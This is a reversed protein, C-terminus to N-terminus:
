PKAPGPPMVPRRHKPINLHDAIVENYQFMVAFRQWAEIRARETLEGVTRISDRLLQREAYAWTDHNAIWQGHADIRGAEAAIRDNIGAVATENVQGQTTFIYVVCGMLLTCLGGIIQNASPQWKERTDAKTM